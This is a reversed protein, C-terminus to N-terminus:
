FRLLGMDLLARQMQRVRNYTEPCAVNACNVGASSTCRCADRIGIALMDFSTRQQPASPRTHSNQNRGNFFDLFQHQRHRIFYYAEMDIGGNIAEVHTESPALQEGPLFADLTVSNYQQSGKRALFDIDDATMSVLDSTESLYNNHLDNNIDGTVGIALSPSPASGLTAVFNVSNATEDKGSEITLTSTVTMTNVVPFTIGSDEAIFRMEGLTSEFRGALNTNTVFIDGSSLQRVDNTGADITADDANFVLAGDAKILIGELGTFTALNAVDFFLEPGSDSWGETRFVLEDQVTVTWDGLMTSDFEDRAHYRLSESTITEDVSAIDLSNPSYFEVGLDSKAGPGPVTIDLTATAASNFSDAEVTVRNNGALEAVNLGLTPNLSITELSNFFIGSDIGRTAIDIQGGTTLDLPGLSEVTIGGEISRFIIDNTVLANIDTAVLEIYGYGEESNTNYYTFRTDPASGAETFFTNTADLTIDGASEVHIEVADDGIGSFSYSYLSDSGDVLQEFFFEQGTWTFDGNVEWVFDGSRRDSGSRVELENPPDLTMGATSSITIPAPEHSNGLSVFEIDSVTSQVTVVPSTIELSTHGDFRGNGDIDIAIAGNSTFTIAGDRHLETEFDIAGATVVTNSTDLDVDERASVNFSEDITFQAADVDIIVDDIAEVIFSGQLAVDGSPTGTAFTAQEINLDITGVGGGSSSLASFFVRDSTSSFTDTNIEVGGGTSSFSIDSFDGDTTVTYALASFLLDGDVAEVDVIDGSSLDIDNTAIAAILDGSTFGLKHGGSNTDSQIVMSDQAVYSLDGDVLTSLVGESIVEMGQAIVFDIPNAASNQVLQMIGESMLRIDVANILVSQDALFNLTGGVSELSVGATTSELTVGDFGSLHADSFSQSHFAGTPTFAVTLESTIDINGASTIDFADTAASGVADFTVDPSTTLGVSFLETADVHGSAATFTLSNGGTNFLVRDRSTTSTGVSQITIAEADGNALGGSTMQLPGQTTSFVVGVGNFRIDENGNGTNSLLLDGGSTVAIDESATVTNGLSASTINLPGTNTSMYVGRNGSITTDGASTASIDGQPILHVGKAGGSFTLDRGSVLINNQLFTEFILDATHVNIDTEGAINFTIQEGSLVDTSGTAFVDLDDTVDLTFTGQLAYGQVSGDDATLTVADNNGTSHVISSGATLSMAGNTIWEQNLSNVLIEDFVSQFVINGEAHRTAISFGVPQSALAPLTGQPGAGLGGNTDAFKANNFLAGSTARGGDENIRLQSDGGSLFNIAGATAIGSIEKTAWFEINTTEEVPSADNPNELVVFNVTGDTNNLLVSGQVAAMTLDAEASFLVDEATIVTYNAAVISFDGAASQTLDNVVSIDVSGEAVLAIDQTRLLSVLEFTDGSLSVSSTESTLGFVDSDYNMSGGNPTSIDIDAGATFVLDDELGFVEETAVFAERNEISIAGGDVTVDTETAEIEIAGGTIDASDSSDVTVSTTGEINVDGTESNFSVIRGTITTDRGATFTLPGEGSLTTDLTSSFTLDGDADITFVDDLSDGTSLTADDGLSVFIGAFADFTVDGDRSQVNILDSGTVDIDNDITFDIPGGPSSPSFNSSAIDGNESSVTFDNVASFTMDGTTSSVDFGRETSELSFSNDVDLTLDTAADITVHTGTIDLDDGIDANLDGSMDFTIPHFNNSSVVINDGSIIVDDGGGLTAPGASGLNIDEVDLEFNSDGSFTISDDTSPDRKTIFYVYGDADFDASDGANNNGTIEVSDAELYFDSSTDLDLDGVATFAASTSSQFVLDTADIEIDSATNGGNSTLTFDDHATMDFEVDHQFPGVGADLSIDGGTLSINSDGAANDEAHISLSGLNDEVSFDGDSSTVTIDQGSLRTSSGGDQRTTIEINDVVDYDSSSEGLFVHHGGTLDIDGGTLVAATDFNMDIQQNVVDGGNADISITGADLVWNGDGAEIDFEQGFMHMESGNYTITDATVQLESSQDNFDTAAVVIEDADVTFSGGDASLRQDNDTSSSFLNSADFLVTGPEVTITNGLIEANLEADINFADVIDAEVEGRVYIGPQEGTGAATFTVADNTSTFSVPSAPATFTVGKSNGEFTLRGNTSDLQTSVFGHLEIGDTTSTFSAALSSISLDGGVDVDVEDGATFIANGESAIVSLSDTADVILKGRANLDIDGDAVVFVQSLGTAYLDDTTEVNIVGTAEDSLIFLSNDASVTVDHGESVIAIGGADATVTMSTAEGHIEEGAVVSLEGFASNFAVDGGAQFSIRDGNVDVSHRASLNLDGDQAEFDISDTASVDLFSASFDLFPATLRMTDFNGFGLTDAGTEGTIEAVDGLLADVVIPAEIAVINDVRLTGKAEVMSALLVVLALVLLHKGLAMALAAKSRM